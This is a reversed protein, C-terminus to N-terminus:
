RLGMLASIVGGKNTMSSNVVRVTYEFWMQVGFSMKSHELCSPHTTVRVRKGALRAPRSPCPPGMKIQQLNPTAM